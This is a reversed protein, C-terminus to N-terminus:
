LVCGIETVGQILVGGVVCVSGRDGGSGVCWRCCM